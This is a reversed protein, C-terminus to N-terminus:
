PLIAGEMLGHGAECRAVCSWRADTRPVFPFNVLPKFDADREVRPAAVDGARGLQALRDDCQAQAAQAAPDLDSHQRVRDPPPAARRYLRARLGGRLRLRLQRRTSNPMLAPM